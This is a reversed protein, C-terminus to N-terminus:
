MKFSNSFLKLVSTGKKVVQWEHTPSFVNEDTDEDSKDKIQESSVLYLLNIIYFIALWKM